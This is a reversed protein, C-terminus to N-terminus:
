EQADDDESPDEEFEINTHMNELLKKFQEDEGYGLTESDEIVMDKLMSFEDPSITINTFSGLLDDMILSEIRNLHEALTARAISLEEAM